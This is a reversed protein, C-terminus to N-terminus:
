PPEIAAIASRMGPAGAFAIVMSSPFAIASWPRVPVAMPMAVKLETTPPRAPPRTRTSKLGCSARMASRKWDGSINARTTSASTATAVTERSDSAFPMAAVTMPRISEVIPM